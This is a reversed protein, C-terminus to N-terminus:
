AILFQKILLLLFFHLFYIAYFIWSFHYGRKGNFLTIFVIDFLSIYALLAMLDQHFLYNLNVLIFFLIISLWKKSLTFYFAITLLIGYWEYDVKLFIGLALLLTCLTLVISFNKICFTKKNNEEDFHYFSINEIVYIILLAIVFTFIINPLITVNYCNLMLTYPIQCIIAFLLLKLIHKKKNRTHSFGVALQYAFLPFSLRGIARFILNDSFFMFGIHDILMFVLAFIKIFFSSM